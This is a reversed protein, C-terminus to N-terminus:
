KKTKCLLSELKKKRKKEVVKFILLLDPNDYCVVSLSMRLTLHEDGM